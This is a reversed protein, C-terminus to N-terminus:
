RRLARRRVGWVLLAGVVNVLALAFGTEGIAYQTRDGIPTTSMDFIPYLLANHVSHVVVAPWM